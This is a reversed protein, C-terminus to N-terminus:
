LGPKSGDSPCWIQQHQISKDYSGLVVGTQSNIKKKGCTRCVRNTITGSMSAILTISGAMKFRTMQRGAAQATFMVGNVNM